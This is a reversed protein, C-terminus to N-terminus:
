FVLWQACTNRLVALHVPVDFFPFVHLSTELECFSMYMTYPAAHCALPKDSGLRKCPMQVVQATALNAAHGKGRREKEADEEQSM